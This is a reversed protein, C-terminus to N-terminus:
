TYEIKLNGLILIGGFCHDMKMPIELILMSLGDM